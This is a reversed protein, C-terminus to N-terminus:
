HIARVIGDCSTQWGYTVQRYERLIVTFISLSKESNPLWVARKQECFPTIKSSYRAKDWFYHLISGYNSHFAFLFGYGLKQINGGETVGLRSKLTVINNLAL